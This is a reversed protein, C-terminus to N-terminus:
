QSLIKRLPGYKKVFETNAGSNVTTVDGYRGEWLHKMIRDTITNYAALTTAARLDGCYFNFLCDVTNFNGAKLNLTISAFLFM